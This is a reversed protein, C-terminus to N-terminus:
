RDIFSLIQDGGYKSSAQHKKKTHKQDKV